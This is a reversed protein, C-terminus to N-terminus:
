HDRPFSDANLAKLPGGEFPAIHCIDDPASFMFVPHCCLSVLPGINRYVSVQYSIKAEYFVFCVFGPFYTTFFHVQGEISM